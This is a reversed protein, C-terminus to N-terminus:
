KLFKFYAEHSTGDTLQLDFKFCKNVYTSQTKWVYNYQDATAEYTLGGNATSTVYEEIPVVTASTDCNVSTVKPNRAAIINLGQNGGLGFKVPISQGAKASNYVPTADTGPNDVPSRFGDFNFIVSYSCQKTDSHGVNDKATFTVTKTGTSSTDVSGSLTSASDIGSEGDNASISVSHSGSNVLFPGGQCNGFTPNDADVKVQGTTAASENGANDTATGSYNHTGSTSFAQDATYSAVGSGDSTDLLAADTSGNYSVTVSDKFWGGSNAVPNAPNTTANPQSPASKDVKVLNEATSFDSEAGAPSDVAKVRYDWTGEEDEAPNSGGFTYSSLTLGSAVPSWNADNAGRKELTYTINDGDVDTSPGWNLTFTGDNNLAENSTIAGPTTPPDNVPNVTVHVTASDSSATGDNASYTFSNPGNFNLDPNYKLNSGDVLAAGDAPEGEIAYTLTDGDADSCIAAVAGQTDEDTVIAVDQCTPVDSISAVTITVEAVNSDATGDNAKYTFSDTGHFNAEPTYDFSGDSHLTFGNTAAAHSPGTGVLTATLSNNDADTDNGLVGPANVTLTGDEDVSYSENNAVPASNAATDDYNATFTRVDSLSNTFGSACITRGGNSLITGPATWNDFARGKTSTSEVTFQVSQTSTPSGPFPLILIPVISGGTIPPMASPLGGICNPNNFSRAVIITASDDNPLNTTLRIISDTFTTTVVGSESGTATVKYTAVFWDPLNFQDTINGSADATVDVNRSWTQGEEDNVVVNVSEGPQWNSGTLTVLEGPAYDDKDSQITPAATSTGTDQALAAVAPIALLLASVVFLLTVKGRLKTRM